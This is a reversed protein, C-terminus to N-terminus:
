FTTEPFPLSEEIFSSTTCIYIFNRNEFFRGIGM